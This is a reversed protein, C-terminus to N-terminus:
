GVVVIDQDAMWEKSDYKQCLWCNLMERNMMWSIGDLDSLKKSCIMRIRLEATLSGRWEIEFSVSLKLLVM